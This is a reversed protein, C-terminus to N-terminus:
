VHLVVATIIGMLESITAHARAVTYKWSLNFIKFYVNELILVM